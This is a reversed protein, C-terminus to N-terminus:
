ADHTFIERVQTSEEPFNLLIPMANGIIGCFHSPM